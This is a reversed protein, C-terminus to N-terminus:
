KPDMWGTMKILGTMLAPLYLDLEALMTRKMNLTQLIKPSIQDFEMVLDEAMAYKFGPHGSFIVTQPNIQVLTPKQTLSDIALIDAKESPIFYDRMFVVNLYQEPLFGNMADEKLRTAHTISFNLPCTESKGGAALNVIQGGLGIGILPINNNLCYYALEVEEVLTPLSHSDTSGWPSGGLIILGDSISKPNPVKGGKTFPRHYKFRITRAELHDELLGLYEASTHQLIDISALYEM